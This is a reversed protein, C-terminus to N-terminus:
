SLSRRRQRRQAEARKRKRRAQPSEYHRRRRAESLIGAQQVQRSFQKLSADFPREPNVITQVMVNGARDVPVPTSRAEHSTAIRAISPATM